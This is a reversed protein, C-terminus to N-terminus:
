ASENHKNRSQHVMSVERLEEVDDSGCVYCHPQYGDTLQKSIIGTEGCNRCLIRM